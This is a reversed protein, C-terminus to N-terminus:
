PTGMAGALKRERGQKRKAEKEDAACSTCTCLSSCAGFGCISLWRARLGGKRSSADHQRRGVQLGQHAASARNIGVVRREPLAAAARKLRLGRRECKREDEAPGVFRHLVCKARWLCNLLLAKSQQRPVLRQKGGGGGIRARQKEETVSVRQSIGLILCRSVTCACSVTTTQVWPPQMITSSAPSVPAHLLASLM